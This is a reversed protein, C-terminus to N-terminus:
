ALGDWLLKISTLLMVLCSLGVLLVAPVGVACVV